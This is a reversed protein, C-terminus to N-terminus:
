PGLRKESDADFFYLAESPLILTVYEEHTVTVEQSVIVTLNHVGRRVHLIQRRRGFDPEIVEVVGDFRVGQTESASRALAVNEPRVGLLVKQDEHTEETIEDPLPVRSEAVHLDRGRVVGELLNMAPMGLFGAVFANAPWKLLYDYSGVQEIRGARMVAIKEAIAIAEEQNHTVYVTTISFRQLLRKLESRTEVRLKADLNVLPEDFLLLSPKRVIARAVALRQREGGALTGPKRKLLESFGYGMIESTIRIREEAEKNPAKRVWFPFWLHERGDFHPYLAYNQFVMGINREGPPVDEMEVGDFLVHGTYDSELGAIVRLLTTKGCGSPGVVSLIEGDLITLNVHDLAFVIEKGEDQSRQYTKTVEDLRILAM